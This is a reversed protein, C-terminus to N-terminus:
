LASVNNKKNFHSQIRLCEKCFSINRLCLRKNFGLVEARQDCLIAEEFHKNYSYIFGKIYFLSGDKDNKIISSDILKTAAQTNGANLLKIVKDDLASAAKSMPKNNNSTTDSVQNSIKAPYNCGILAHLLFLTVFIPKM